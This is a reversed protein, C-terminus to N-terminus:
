RRSQFIFGSKHGHHSYCAAPRLSPVSSPRELQYKGPRHQGRAAVPSVAARAEVQGPGWRGGGVHRGYKRRRAAGKNVARRRRVSLFQWKRVPSLPVRKFVTPGRLWM